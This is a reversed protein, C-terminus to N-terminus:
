ASIGCDREANRKSTEYQQEVDEYKADKYKYYATMMIDKIEDNMGETNPPSFRMGLMIAKYREKYKNWIQLLREKLM